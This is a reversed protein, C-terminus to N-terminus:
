KFEEKIKKEGCRYMCTDYFECTPCDQPYCIDVDNM